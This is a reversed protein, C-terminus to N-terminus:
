KRKPELHVLLDTVGPINKKIAEEIILSIEHAKDLHTDPDLQIHLDIYVDDTRGRTRIKHFSKVGKVSLVIEEIKKTDVTAVADCLVASGQKIISFGAHGIFVAIILTVLPDVIPYGLKIAILAVIVSLSTFIDAKTHMSDAVLIDSRLLKGQRYEYNMVGINIGLTVIMVLFSQFDISIAVPNLFRRIGQQILNLFVLFLLVAIGLSSLTEYKKHGYPHNMDKPRAALIIGILGIINSAGDSLSHFGDATMSACRSLLGYIIKAAAVLWNLILVVILVQKVRRYHKKIDNEM